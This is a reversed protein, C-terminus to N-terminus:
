ESAEQRALEIARPRIELLRRRGGAARRRATAQAREREAAALRGDLASLREDPGDAVHRLLDELRRHVRSLTAREFLDTAFVWAGSVRGRDERMYLYLDWRLRDPLALPEIAIGEVALAAACEDPLATHGFEFAVQTLPNRGLVRELGLEQVVREFPAQRNALGDLVVRRVRGLLARFTPDGSLDVRLALTNFFCGILEETERGPRDSVNVAVVLDDQRAWRALLLAFAALLLTFPTVNERRGLALLDAALAPPLAFELRDGLRGAVRGRPNDAPLEVVAPAGALTRRWHALQAALAEGDLRERQWCAFDSYQIPPPPLSAARGSKFDAYLRALERLFLGWSWADMAIHHFTVRLLRRRAARRVVVVRIALPEATSLPPAGAGLLLRRAEAERVPEPLAAVDAVLVVQRPPPAVVQVPQGGVVLYRTRLVEHRRVIEGVARGFAEEDLPGDLRYAMSMEQDGPLLQDMFWLRQQAFSLPREPGAAAAAIAPPEPGERAAARGAIERALEAVSSGDLLAVMTVTVGLDAEVRNKVEIGVLSDVGLQHLSDEPRLAGAAAGLLRRLLDRLYGVVLAPREPPAAAALTRRDLRRPAAAAGPPLARTVPAFVPLAAVAPYFQSWAQWDMPMFGAQPAGGALLRELAAVGQAPTFGHFGRQQLRAGGDGLGTILGVETWLGWNVALAPLGLARRHHALADLFANGAAYNGHGPSGLLASASSFLVFADLPTGATRAHLHWAGQVKAAAVAHFRVRDLDQLLRDDTVGAAHFVGALPAGGTALRALAADLQGADAVDAQLAMVSAGAAELRALQARTEAGPARRGLLALRRAGKEVLWEAVALGLGGLGGTDLYCGDPRVAFGGGAPAPPAAPRLRAALRGGGRLAVQSEADMAALEAALAEVEGAAAPADPALDVLRGALEPHESAVVRGLGWLPAQEVALPRRGDGAPQAGRTVLFLRPPPEGSEAGLLAQLLLLVSGCGLTEARELFGAPEGGHAPADLSWLHVIGRWPRPLRERAAAVLAAFDEARDPRITARREGSLHCAEGAHALLAAGGGGALREALAEALGGEDGLLLWGGAVGGGAAGAVPEWALEHYAGPVEQPAAAAFARHIPQLRVGAIALVPAEDADRLVLDGAFGGGESEPVERWSLQVWAVRGPRRHVWVGDMGVPVLTRADGPPGGGGLLRAALVAHMGADFPAPHYGYADIEPELVAPSEIRAVAEREGCWLQAVNRFRPGYALGRAAMAAYAEQRSHERPCRARVAALPEAAAASGEGLRLRGAAHAVWPAEGAAAPRGFVRFAVIGGPEETMVLQLRRPEHGLVIAREFRLAEVGAAATRFTEAAAALVMELIGAAPLVPAGEIVHDRLYPLARLGVDAEWYHGAGAASSLGRGLLPHHHRRPDAAEARAQPRDGDLWFRSRQWRYTPLRVAPAPRAHVREWRVPYGAAHLAGLSALLTAREQGRRATPLVVARGPLRGRLAEQISPALVPHGGIEVLTEYGDALLRDLTEAFRVPQRLNRGWYGSGLVAGELAAAEVTSYFPLAAPGAPLGDLLRELERRPGDMSASHSAYDIRVRRCFVGRAQVEAMWERLAELDGSVMSARPGTRGALCLGVRGGLAVETDEPPLAVVAVGGRGLEPAVALGRAWVVRAAADLDLAGAVHAAAVEGLSHGVVAQPEIGWSRWLAAQAVQLAFIALQVVEPRDLRSREAPASLEARLSCGTLSSVAADCRALAEGFAPERLLERGMGPWQSGHGSFVFAIRPRERAAAGAAVFPHAEGGLHVSLAALAEPASAAVLALRHELQERRLASAACVARWPAAAGEEALFRRYADALEALAGPSKASLLLLGPGAEALAACPAPPAEELVVHANAGTVGFASVGARRPRAGRPWPALERVMEVPLEPWPIEPNPVNYHLSPAIAEHALGLAVKILGALGSVADTHGLNTKVSGIKLPRDPPRGEGFVRALAMIEVPDGTPTGTGHAEVYDIDAPAIGARRCATRLLEEQGDRGPTVLTGGSRGDHNIASGRILAYVADGDALARALPKLVLVAIGESRVIGDAGADGFKCRGDAALMRAHSFAITPHPELNLQCGGALALRTEGSWLSQCALHVATLSSSCATDIVVAPGRFDYAHSIRAAAGSRLAGLMRFMDFSKVDAFLLQAYDSLFTGVFVGVPQGALASPVEGADELAEWSLELLLRQQPDLYIAEHRPMGFFEADFRDIGEIVGGRRSAIRGPKGPRPDFLDSFSWRDDPIEGVADVGDRLMRWLARPGEATPLRCGIGVLAIPEPQTPPWLSM